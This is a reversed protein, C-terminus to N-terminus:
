RDALCLMKKPIDPVELLLASRAHQDRMVEIVGEHDAIAEDHHTVACLNELCRLLVGGNFLDSIM